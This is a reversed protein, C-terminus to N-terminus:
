SFTRAGTIGSQAVANDSDEQLGHVIQFPQGPPSGLAGGIHFCTRGASGPLDGGHV